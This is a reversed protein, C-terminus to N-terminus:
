NRVYWDDWKSFAEFKRFYGNASMLDFIAARNAHVYNHEVTIIDIDHADFDFSRLIELESGETDISLYDIRRPAGHQALLDNLSVSEVLYRNGHMRVRAHRDSDSFSEITSFEGSENFEIHEGTRTWVCRPDITCLRNARLSERWGRGPEALIGQWGHCKELLYTNSLDIGNTAGFEVFYGPGADARSFLVFLDQFLQSHSQELNRRVFDLFRQDDTGADASHNALRLELLADFCAELRAAAPDPRFRVVDAGFPRTAARVVGLLATRLSQM